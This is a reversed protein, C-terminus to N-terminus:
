KTKEHKLQEVSKAITTGKSARDCMDQPTGARESTGNMREASINHRRWGGKKQFGISLGGTARCSDRGFQSRGAELIVEGLCAVAM